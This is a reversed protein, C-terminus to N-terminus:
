RAAGPAAPTAPTEAAPHIVALGQAIASAVSPGMAELSSANLSAVSSLEIAIAPGAISRLDRVTASSSAAPSASFKQQIGAQVLNAFLHSTDDFNLQAQRWPILVSSPTSAPQQLPLSSGPAAAAADPSYTFPTAVRYYYVRATGPTGTSAVHISVFVAGPAQNAITARDDFTPDADSDRTMVVRYGRTALEARIGRCLALVVDKENLGNPGRAGNDAGGHAPDLVVTLPSPPPTPVPAPAVPPQSVQPQPAAPEATQPAVPAQARPAARLVSREVPAYSIVAIALFILIFFPFPKRV